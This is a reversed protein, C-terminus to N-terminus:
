PTPPTPYRDIGLRRRRSLEKQHLQSRRDNYAKSGAKWAVDAETPQTLVGVQIMYAEFAEETQCAIVMERCGEVAKRDDPDRTIIVRLDEQRQYTNLVKAALKAFNLCLAEPHAIAATSRMERFSRVTADWVRKMRVEDQKSFRSLGFPADSIDHSVHAKVEGEGTHAHAASSVAADAKAPSSSIKKTLNSVQRSLKTFGFIDTVIEVIDTIHPLLRFGAKVTEQIM